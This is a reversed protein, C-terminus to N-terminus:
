LSVELLMQGISGHVHHSNHSMRLLALVRHTGELEAHEIINKICKHRNRIYNKINLKIVEALNVLM